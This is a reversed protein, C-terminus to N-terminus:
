IEQPFLLVKFNKDLDSWETQGEPFSQETIQRSGPIADQKIWHLNRVRQAYETPLDRLEVRGDKRLFRWKLELQSLNFDSRGVNVEKEGTANFTVDKKKIKRVWVTPIGTKRAWQEAAWDDLDGYIKIAKEKYIPDQCAIVEDLSINIGQHHSMLAENYALQKRVAKDRYSANKSIFFPVDPNPEIGESRLTAGQYSEVFGTVLSPRSRFGKYAISRLADMLLSEGNNLDTMVHVCFYWDFKKGNTMSNGQELVRFSHKDEYCPLKGTLNPNLLDDQSIPKPAGSVKIHTNKMQTLLAAVDSDGLRPTMRHAIYSSIQSYDTTQIHIYNLDYLKSQKDKDERNHEMERWLITKQDNSVYDQIFIEKLIDCPLEPELHDENQDVPPSEVDMTEVGRPAPMTSDNTSVEQRPIARRTTSGSATAVRDIMRKELKRNVWKEVPFNACEDIAAFLVRNFYPDFVQDMLLTLAFVAHHVQCFLYPKLCLLTKENIIERDHCCAFYLNNIGDTIVMTRMENVIREHSRMAVTIDTRTKIYKSVKNFILNGLTLDVKPLAGTGIMKEVIMHLTQFVSYGLQVVKFASDDASKIQTKMDLVTLDQYMDVPHLDGLPELGGESQPSIVHNVFSSKHCRDRLAKDLVVQNNTVVVRCCVCPTEIQSYIRGTEGNGFDLFEFVNYVSFGTSMSTKTANVSSDMTHGHKDNNGAQRGAMNPPLEDATIIDDSRSLDTFESKESGMYYSKVTKKVLLVKLLELLFSKGVGGEGSGIYNFHTDNGVRYVDLVGFYIVHFEKFNSIIECVYRLNVSQKKIYEAFLSEEFNTQGCHLLLPLGITANNHINDFYYTILRNVSATLVSEGGKKFVRFLSDCAAKEYEELVSAFKKVFASPEYVIYDELVFAKKEKVWSDLERRKKPKQSDMNAIDSYRLISSKWNQHIEIVKHVDDKEGLTSFKFSVYDADHSVQSQPDKFIKYGNISLNQLNLGKSSAMQQISDTPVYNNKRAIKTKREGRRYQVQDTGLSSTSNVSASRREEIEVNTESGSISSSSGENTSIRTRKSSSSLSALESLSVTENGCNLNRMLSSSNVMHAYKKPVELVVNKYLPNSDNNGWPFTNYKLGSGNSSNSWFCFDQTLEYQNDFPHLCGEMISTSSPEVTSEDSASPKLWVTTLNANDQDPEYFLCRAASIVDMDYNSALLLAKHPEFVTFFSCLSDSNPEELDDEYNNLLKTDDDEENEDVDCDELYANGDGGAIAAEYEDEEEDMHCTKAAFDYFNCWQKWDRHTTSLMSKDDAKMENISNIIDRSLNCNKPFSDKKSEINDKYIELANIFNCRSADLNFNCDEVFLWFLFGALEDPNKKSRCPQLVVHYKFRRVVKVRDIPVPPQPDPNENEVVDQNQPTRPPTCPLHSTKEKLFQYHRAIDEDYVVTGNISNSIFPEKNMCRFTRSKTPYVWKDYDAWRKKMLFPQKRLAPTGTNKQELSLLVMLWINKLITPTLECAAATKSVAFDDFGIADKSFVGNDGIPLPLAMMKCINTLVKGNKPSITTYRAQQKNQPNRFFRTLLAEHCVFFFVYRIKLLHHETWQRSEPEFSSPTTM